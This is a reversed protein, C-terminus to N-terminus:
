WLKLPKTTLSSGISGGWATKSGFSLNLSGGQWNTGIRLTHDKSSIDQFSTINFISGINQYTSLGALSKATPNGSGVYNGASLSLGASIDFGIGQNFSANLFGGDGKVWGFTVSVGFGGGVIANGYISVALYDPLYTCNSFSNIWEPDYGQNMSNEMARLVAGNGKFGNINVEPLTMTLNGNDDGSVGWGNSMRGNFTQGKYNLGKAAAEKPSNVDPNWYTGANPNEPDEVWGDVMGTPDVRGIPNWQCYNYPSLWSREEAMPDVSLWLSIDSNYYRAGFYGYDTELDKEKGSFTYRADYQTIRQNIFSEGYPLYQLHQIAEGGM